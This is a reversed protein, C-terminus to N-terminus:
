RCPCCTLRNTVNTSIQESSYALLSVPWCCYFRSSQPPWFALVIRKFAQARRECDAVSKLFGCHLCRYCDVGVIPIDECYVLEHTGTRV